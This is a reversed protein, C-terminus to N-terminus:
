LGNKTKITTFTASRQARGSPEKWTVTVVIQKTSSNIDTLTIQGSGSPLGSLLTGTFSGSAPLSGFSTARLDEMKEIAIRQAMELHRANNNLLLTNSSASYLLLVVGIIFISVLAEIISFGSQNNTKTGM